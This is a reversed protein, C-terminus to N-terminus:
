APNAGNKVKSIMDEVRKRMGTLGLNPTNCMLYMTKKTRNRDHLQLHMCSFLTSDNVAHSSKEMKKVNTSFGHKDKTPAVYPYRMFLKRLIGIKWCQVSIPIIILMRSSRQVETCWYCTAFSNEWILHQIKNSTLHYGTIDGLFPVNPLISSLASITESSTSNGNILMLIWFSQPCWCLLCLVSLFQLIEGWLPLVM